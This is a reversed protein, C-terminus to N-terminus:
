EESSLLGGSPNIRLFGESIVVSNDSKSVVRIMIPISTRLLRCEQDYIIIRFTYLVGKMPRIIRVLLTYQDKQFIQFLNRYSNSYIFIVHQFPSNSILKIYFEEVAYRDSNPGVSIKFIYICSSRYKLWFGVQAHNSVAFGYFEGTNAPRLSEYIKTVTFHPLILVLAIFTVLLPIAVLPRIDGERM